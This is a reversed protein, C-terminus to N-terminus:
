LCKKFIENITNIHKDSYYHTNFNLCQFLSENNDNFTKLDDIYRQTTIDLDKKLNLKNVLYDRVYYYKSFLKSDDYKLRNKIYEIKPTLKYNKNFIININSCDQLHIQNVYKSYESKIHEIKRKFINLNYVNSIHVCNDLKSLIKENTKSVIILAYSNKKNTINNSTYIINTVSLNPYLMTMLSKINKLNDIQDKTSYIIKVKKNNIIKDLTTNRYYSESVSIYNIETKDIKQKVRVVKETKPVEIEDFNIANAKIFSWIENQLLKLMDEIKDDPLDIFLTKVKSLIREINFENLEIESILYFRPYPNKSKVYKIKKKDIINNETYYLNKLNFFDHDTGHFKCHCNKSNDSFGFRSYTFLLDNFYDSLGSYFYKSYKYNNFNPKFSKIFKEVYVNNSNISVYKKDFKFFDTLTSINNAENSVMEIIEARLKVIKNKIINITEASYDLSERSATVSIDGINFKLAFPVKHEYSDLGLVKFDLPYKVKGLSVHLYPENDGRYLFHDGEYIKYDNKVCYSNFGDYIIDEFYYLQNLVEEEFRNVDNKDIQIEVQTGNSESIPEFYILDFIPADNGERIIYYYKIGDHITTINFSNDKIINFEPKGDFDLKPSGDNNLIPVKKTRFYALPSKSGIGFNGIQDNTNRKTSEFFVSYISDMREPSLGVGFDIFSISYENSINDHNMKILIPKKVKAEAHSDFCNSTIERVITGIPNSYTNKIFMRFIMQNANESLRMTKTKVDTSTSEIVDNIKESNLIM